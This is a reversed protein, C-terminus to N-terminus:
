RFNLSKTDKQYLKLLYDEFEQIGAAKLQSRYNEIIKKTEKDSKSFIAKIRLDNYANGGILPKLKPELEKLDPLYGLASFGEVYKIKPPNYSVQKTAWDYEHPNVSEGYTTEGFDAKTANDTAGIFNYCQAGQGGLFIGTNILEKKDGAAIMDIMSQKPVPNGNVLDYNIGEIGYQWIMKGQKSALFDLFKVVEEPNKTTKPISWACYGTKGQGYSYDDGNWNNLPGVPLYETNKFVDVYNNIDAIIASSNSTSVEQARTGDM